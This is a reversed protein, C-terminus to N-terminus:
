INLCLIRYCPVNQLLVGKPTRTGECELWERRDEKARVVEKKKEVAGGLLSMLLGKWNASHGQLCVLLVRPQCQDM